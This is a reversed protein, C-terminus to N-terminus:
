SDRQHDMVLKVTSTVFCIHPSLGRLMSCEIMAFALTRREKM